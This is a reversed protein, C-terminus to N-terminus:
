HDVPRRAARRSSTHFDCQAQALIANGFGKSTSSRLRGHQRPQLPSTLLGHLRHRTLDNLFHFCRAKFFCRPWHFARCGGCQGTDFEGRSTPFHPTICRHLHVLDKTWRTQARTVVTPFTSQMSRASSNFCDWFKQASLIM